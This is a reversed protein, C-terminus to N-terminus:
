NPTIEIGFTSLRATEIHLPYNLFFKSVNRIDTGDLILIPIGYKKCLHPGMPDILGKGLNKNELSFLPNLILESSSISHVDADNLVLYPKNKIMVCIKSRLRNAFYLAISDSTVRWSHELHDVEFLDEFPQIIYIGPNDISSSDIRNILQVSTKNRIENFKSYLEEANERMVKISKWHFVSEKDESYKTNKYQERFQNCKMGGGVLIFYKWKTKLSTTFCKLFEGLFQSHDFISGGIKLILQNEM